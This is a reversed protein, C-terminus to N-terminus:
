PVTGADRVDVSSGCRGCKPAALKIGLIWVHGCACTYRIQGSIKMLKAM